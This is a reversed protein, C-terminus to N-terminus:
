KKILELGLSHEGWEVQKANLIFTVAEIDCALTQACIYAKCSALAEIVDERAEVRVDIKDTVEYGSEKRLNQIRNVLERAIGECRLADSITIDLAVTLGGDVAVLWGPMDESTISVDEPTLMVEGSALALRYCDSRELLGIEEQSFHQMADAIEKMQKGYKKGLVKFNPKVKKTILGSTDYLYEIEKVNVENLVISKIREM